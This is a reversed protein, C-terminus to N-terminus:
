ACVTLHLVKEQVIGDLADAVAAPPAATPVLAGGDGDGGAAAVHVLPLVDDLGTYNRRATQRVTM